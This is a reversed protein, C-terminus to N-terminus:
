MPRKQLDRKCGLRHTDLIEKTPRKQLDVYTEKTPRKQLRFSTHRPNRTYIQLHKETATCMVACTEKTMTVYVPRKKNYNQGCTKKTPSKQLDRKCTEETATYLVVRTVKTTTRYM